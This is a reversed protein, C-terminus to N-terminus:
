LGLALVSAVVVLLVAFAIFIVFSVVATRCADFKQRAARALVLVQDWADDHAPVAFLHDDLDERSAHALLPWSFRNVSGEATGTPMLARALSGLTIAFFTTAVIVLFGVVIAATTGRQIAEIVTSSNALTLTLVVGLAAMLITAKTDAFRVWNAVQDLAQHAGESTDHKRRM